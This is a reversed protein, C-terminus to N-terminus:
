SQWIRRWWSRKAKAEREQRALAALYDHMRMRIEAISRKADGEGKRDKMIARVLLDLEIM